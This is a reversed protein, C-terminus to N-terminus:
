KCQLQVNRAADISRCAFALLLLLLWLRVHHAFKNMWLQALPNIYRRRWGIFKAIVQGLLQAMLSYPIEYTQEKTGTRAEPKAENAPYKRGVRSLTAFQNEFSKPSGWSVRDM